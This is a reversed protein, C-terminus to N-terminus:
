RQDLRELYKRGMIFNEQFGEVTWISEKAESFAKKIQPLGSPKITRKVDSLWRGACNCTEPRTCMLKTVQIKMPHYKM